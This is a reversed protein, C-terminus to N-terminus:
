RHSFGGYSSQTSMPTVEGAAPPNENKIASAIGADALESQLIAIFARDSSTYLKQM